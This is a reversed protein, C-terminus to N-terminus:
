TAGDLAARLSARAPGNRDVVSDCRDCWHSHEIDGAQGEDEGCTLTLLAERTAAELVRVRERLTNAQAEAADARANAADRDARATALDMDLMACADSVLHQAHEDATALDADHAAREVALAAQAEDRERRAEDLAAYLAPRADPHITDNM